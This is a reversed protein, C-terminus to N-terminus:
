ESNSPSEPGGPCRQEAGGLKLFHAFFYLFFIIFIFVNGVPTAAAVLDPTPVSSPTQPLKKPPAPSGVSLRGHGSVNNLFSSSSSAKLSPVRPSVIVPDVAADAVNDDDDGGGDYMAELPPPPVFRNIFRRTSSVPTTISAASEDVAFSKSDQEHTLSSVMTYSQSWSREFEEMNRRERELDLYSPLEPRLRPEVKECLLFLQSFSFFPVAICVSVVTIAPFQRTGHQQQQQQQRHNPATIPSFPEEQWTTTTTAEKNAM